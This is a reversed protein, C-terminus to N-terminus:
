QEAGATREMHATLRAGRVWRHINTFFQSYVGFARTDMDGTCAKLSM